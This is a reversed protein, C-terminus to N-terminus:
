VGRRWYDKTLIRDFVGQWSVHYHEPTKLEERTKQINEEPIEEAQPIASFLELTSDLYGRSWNPHYTGLPEGPEREELTAGRIEEATERLAQLNENISERQEEPEEMNMRFIGLEPIEQAEAILDIFTNYAKLYRLSNCYSERLSTYAFSYEGQPAYEDLSIPRTYLQLLQDETGSIRERIHEGALITSVLTLLANGQTWLATKMNVAAEYGTTIWDLLTLYYSYYIYHQTNQIKARLKEKDYLPLFEKAGEILQYNSYVYNLLVSKGVTLPNFQRRGYKKRFAEATQVPEAQKRKKDEAAAEVANCVAELLTEGEEPKYTYTEESDVQLHVEQPKSRKSM